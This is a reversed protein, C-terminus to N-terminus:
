NFGGGGEPFELKPEYKGKFITTKTVEGGGKGKGEGTANGIVWRPTLTSIKHFWICLRKINRGHYV